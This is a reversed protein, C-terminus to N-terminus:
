VGSAVLLLQAGAATDTDRTFETNDVRLRPQRLDGSGRVPALTGECSLFAPRARALRRPPGAKLAWNGRPVCCTGRRPGRHRQAAGRGTEVHSRHIQCVAGGIFLVSSM